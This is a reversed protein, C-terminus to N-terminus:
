GDEAPAARAAQAKAYIAEGLKQARGQLSQQAKEDLAEKSADNQKLLAEASKLASEIKSKEDGGIKDGHEALSKKVSHVLADLANRSQAMEFRRHDEAKNAEADKVM